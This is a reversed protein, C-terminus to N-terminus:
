IPELDTAAVEHQGIAHTVAHKNHVEVLFRDRGLYQAFDGRQLAVHYQKGEKEM